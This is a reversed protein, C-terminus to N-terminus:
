RWQRYPTDVESAQNLNSPGQCPPGGGIIGTDLSLMTELLDALVSDALNEANELIIMEPWTNEVVLNCATDTEISVYM